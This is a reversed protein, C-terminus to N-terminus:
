WPAWALRLGLGGRYAGRPPRGERGPGPHPEVDGLGAAGQRLGRAPAAGGTVAGTDRGPHAGPSGQGEVGPWEPTQSPGSPGRVYSGGGGGREDGDATVEAATTGLTRSGGVFQTTEYCKSMYLYWLVM